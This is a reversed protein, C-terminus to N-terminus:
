EGGGGGDGGGSDGGFGGGIDGGDFGGDSGNDHSSDGPESGGWHFFGGGDSDGSARNQTGRFFFIGVTLLILAVLAFACIFIFSSTMM